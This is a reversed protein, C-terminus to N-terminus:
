GLDGGLYPLRPLAVREGLHAHTAAELALPVLGDGDIAETVGVVAGQEPDAVHRRPRPAILIRDGVLSGALALGVLAGGRCDAGVAAADQPHVPVAGPVEDPLPGALVVEEVAGGGEQEHAPLVLGDDAGAEVAELAVLDVADAHQEVAPGAVAEPAL